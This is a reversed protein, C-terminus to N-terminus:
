RYGSSSKHLAIKGADYGLATLVTELEYLSSQYKPGTVIARVAEKPFGLPVYTNLMDTKAYVGLGKATWGEPLGTVPTPHNYIFRKECESEYHFTKHSSGIAYQKKIAAMAMNMLEPIDAGANQVLADYIPPICRDIAEETVYTIARYEIGEATDVARFAEEDFGIAFGRGDDAYAIWQSVSDPNECFCAVYESSNTLPNGYLAIARPQRAFDYLGELRHYRDYKELRDFFLKYVGITENSDNLNRISTMWIEQNRLVSLAASLKCYHYVLPM